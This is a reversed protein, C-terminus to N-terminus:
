AAALKLEGVRELDVHQRAAWLDHADQMTLWSEASRGIAKSPRLAMEPTVRRPVRSYRRHRWGRWRKGHAILPASSHTAVRRWCSSWSGTQIPHTIHSFSLPSGYGPISLDRCSSGAFGTRLQFFEAPLAGARILLLDTDANGCAYALEMSDRVDTVGSICEIVSPDSNKLLQFKM